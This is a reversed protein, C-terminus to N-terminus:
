DMRWYLIKGGSATVSKSPDLVDLGEMDIVAHIRKKANGVTGESYISFVTSQTTLLKRAEKKNPLVLGPGQYLLGLTSSSPDELAKIFEGSGSFPMFERMMLISQLLPAVTTYYTAPDAYPSLGSEDSSLALVLMSLAQASATNVNIRGKGWVTMVRREPDTPDPDVFASWFDDGIGKVLHLEELSDFPANKRLYPAEDNDYYTGDEGGSGDCLDEDPDAFDLVECLIATRDFFKDDGASREFLADYQVPSVLAALEQTALDRVRKNDAGVNVLIKSEEDVIVVKFEEGPELGLGEAASLDLGAMDELLSGGGEDGEEGASSKGTKAEEAEEATGATGNAGVKPASFPEMIMDAYKWFPFNFTGGLLPQVSLMLRSLNVGSRALYEAKVADRSNAAAAVYVADDDMLDITMAALVALAILVLILAV